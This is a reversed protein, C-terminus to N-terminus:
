YAEIGGKREGRAEGVRRRQGQQGHLWDDAKSTRSYPHMPM